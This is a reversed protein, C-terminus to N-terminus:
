LLCRLRNSAKEKKSQLPIEPGERAARSTETAPMPARPEPATRRLGNYREATRMLASSQAAQHHRILAWPAGERGRWGKLRGTRHLGEVPSACPRPKQPLVPSSQFPGSEALVRLPVVGSEKLPGGSLSTIIQTCSIKRYKKWRWLHWRARPKM